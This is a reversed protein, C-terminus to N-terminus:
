YWVNDKKMNDVMCANCGFFNKVEEYQDRVEELSSIIRQRDQGVPIYTQLLAEVKKVMM